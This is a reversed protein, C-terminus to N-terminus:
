SLQFLFDLDRGQLTQQNDPGPLEVAKGTQGSGSSDTQLGKESLVKGVNETQQVQDVMTKGKERYQKTKPKAKEDDPQQSSELGTRSEQGETWHITQPSGQVAPPQSPQRWSDTPQPESPFVMQGSNVQFSTQSQGDQCLASPQSGHQSEQGLIEPNSWHSEKRLTIVSSNAIGCIETQLSQDTLEKRQFIESETQLSQSLVSKGSATRSKAGQETAPAADGSEQLQTTGSHDENIENCCKQEEAGLMEENGPSESDFPTQSEDM